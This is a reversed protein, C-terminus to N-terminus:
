RKQIPRRYVNGGKKNEGTLYRAKETPREANM